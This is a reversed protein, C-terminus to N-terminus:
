LRICKEEEGAIKLENEARDYFYVNYSLIDKEAVEADNVSRVMCRLEDANVDGGDPLLLAEHRSCPLVYLDKGQADAFGKLAGPYLVASFGDIGRSNTLVHFCPKGEGPNATDEAMGAEKLVSFIDRIKVPLTKPANCIAQAMIEQAPVGWYEALSDTVMVSAMGDRMLAYCVMSLDLIEMHPAKALLGRNKETNLLRFYLRGKCKGYNRIVAEMYTPIGATKISDKYRTM